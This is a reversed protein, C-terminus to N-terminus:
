RKAAAQELLGAAWMRRMLDTVDRRIESPSAAPFAEALLGAIERPSAPGALVEWVALGVPNLEFIGGRDPAALFAAAGLSQLALGHRRRFRGAPMQGRPATLGSSEPAAPTAAGSLAAPVPSGAAFTQKLLRVADGLDDYDLGYSPVPGVIALLRDLAKPSDGDRKFHQLILHRAGDSAALPLLRTEGPAGRRLAVIARIPKRLGYPALLPAPLDLYQYRGDSPGRHLAVFAQLWPPANEPLPLRLRPNIGLAVGEGDQTLPMLDDAHVRVGSAALAAVLTTKGTRYTSPFVILGGGIEVAACHLGLLGCRDLSAYVLDVLFACVASVASRKLVHRETWSTEIRYIDEDQRVRILWQAKGSAVQRPWTPAARDLVALFRDGADIAVPGPVNEFAYHRGDEPAPAGGQAARRGSSLRDATV